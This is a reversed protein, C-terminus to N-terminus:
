ILKTLNWTNERWTLEFCKLVEHNTSTLPLWNMTISWRSSAQVITTEIGTQLEEIVLRSCLTWRPCSLSGLNQFQQTQLLRTKCSSIYLICVLSNGKQVHQSSKRHLLQVVTNTWEVEWPSLHLVVVGASPSVPAPCQLTCVGYIQTSCRFKRGDGASM